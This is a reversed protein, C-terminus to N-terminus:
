QRLYRTTGDPHIELLEVRETFAVKKLTMNSMEAVQKAIGELREAIKEDSAVLPMWQYTGDPEQQAPFACPHEVGDDDEAMFVYIIHKIETVLQKIEQCSKPILSRRLM